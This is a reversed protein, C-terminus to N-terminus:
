ETMIALADAGALAMAPLTAYALESGYKAKVNDITPPRDFAALRPPIFLLWISHLAIRRHHEDVLELNVSVV